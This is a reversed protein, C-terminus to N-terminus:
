KLVISKVFGVTRNDNTFLPDAALAANIKELLLDKQFYLQNRVM